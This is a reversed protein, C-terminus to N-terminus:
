CQIVLINTVLIDEQIKKQCKRLPSIYFTCAGLAHGFDCEELCLTSM